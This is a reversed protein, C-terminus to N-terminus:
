CGKGVILACHALLHHHAVPCDSSQSLVMSVLSGGLLVVEKLMQMRVQICFHGHPAPPQHSDGCM